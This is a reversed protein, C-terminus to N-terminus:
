SGTGSSAGGSSGSEELVCYGRATCIAGTDCCSADDSCWAAEDLLPVCVFQCQFPGRTETQADWAAVCADDGLCAESDDCDNPVPSPGGSTSSESSSSAAGTSTECDEADTDRCAGAPLDDPMEDSLNDPAFCGGAVLLLLLTSRKM